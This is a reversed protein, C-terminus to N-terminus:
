LTGSDGLGAPNFARFRSLTASLTSTADNSFALKYITNTPVSSSNSGGGSYGATGSNAAGAQYGRYTVTAAITSTSDNSFAIKAISGSQTNSATIRGSVAYGATGSNAFASHSYRADPLSSSLTSISDNSFALKEVSSLNGPGGDAYGGVAYGATGSNAMGSTAHRAQALTAALTSRSDNSFIVKVIDSQQVPPDIYGGYSYGATGSNAFGGHYYYVKGMNAALTTRADTAYTIKDIRSYNGSGDGALVYGAIGSNSVGVTQSVTTALTAVLTSITESAVPLKDISNAHSSDNFGGGWYMAKPYTPTIANSAASEPGTATTNTGKVKFTYSTGATLGTVTIPSTGTATITGPTSTATFTTATGGTVAATYAVTVSTGTGLDTVAGITPADPVDDIPTVGAM